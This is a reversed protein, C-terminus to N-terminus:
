KVVLLNKNILRVIRLLEDKLNNSEVFKSVPVPETFQLIEKMEEASLDLETDIEDNMVVSKDAAGIFYRLEGYIFDILELTHKTGRPISEEVEIKEIPESFLFSFNKKELFLDILANDGEMRWGFAGVVNGNEFELMCFHEGKNLTLRGSFRATSALLILKRLPVVETNGKRIEM